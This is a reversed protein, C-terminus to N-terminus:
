VQPLLKGTYELIQRQTISRILTPDNYDGEYYNRYWDVTQKITEAFNWKPEWALMHYAKDITLNLKGAEHKADDLSLNEWTGPWHTLIEEVIAEVSKNSTLHPGFNFPSSLQKLRLLDSELRAKHIEAGLHLYGSLLELVHQWPRTAHRNRVMIPEGKSLHRMCDPVIRDKAWDGGGIVNGGRVSAVSVSPLEEEVNKAFFSRQYSSIILEACAKSASYPDYGGVPDVERYAYDWEVNEYVKDTTIMIVVCNQQNQRIAELVNMSGMVNTDITFIPDDFGRRVLPQAALHFVFDPQHDELSKRLHDLDRVDGRIDALLREGLHLAEFHSPETPPELSYGVVKAGLLLLWESLWSGKFGTHGTIFVTKGFYCNGFDM